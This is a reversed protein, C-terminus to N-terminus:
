PRTEKTPHAGLTSASRAPNILRSRRSRPDCRFSPRCAADSCGARQEHLISKALYRDPGNSVGVAWCVVTETYREVENAANMRACNVEVILPAPTTM